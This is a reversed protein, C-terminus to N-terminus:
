FYFKSMIKPIGRCKKYLLFCALCAGSIMAIIAGIYFNDGTNPNDPATKITNVFQINDTVLEPEISNGKSDKIKEVTVKELVLNEVNIVADGVTHKDTKKEIIFTVKYESQDFDIGLEEAMKENRVESIIFTYTGVGAYLGSNFFDFSSNGDKDNKVTITKIEGGELGGTMTFSFDGAEVGLSNGDYDLLMKNVDITPISSIGYINNINEGIKLIGNNAIGGGHTYTSVNGSIFVKGEAIAAQKAEETPNANLALFRDSTVVGNNGDGVENLMNSNDLRVLYGTWNALHRAVDDIQEPILNGSILVNSGLMVNTIVAGATYSISSNGVSTGATFIDQAATVFLKKQELSWNKWVAGGDSNNNIDGSIGNFFESWYNDTWETFDDGGLGYNDFFAGGNVTSIFNRGTICGALGGGMVGATNGSVVVNKMELIANTDVYIAGGGMDEKTHTTNNKINIVKGNGAIIVGNGTLHIGGGEGDYTTNNTIDGGTMIFDRVYVGGGGNGVTEPTCVVNGSILGGDMTFKDAFVGGGAVGSTNSSEYSGGIIGGTMEFNANGVM